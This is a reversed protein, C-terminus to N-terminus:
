STLDGHPRKLKNLVSIMPTGIKADYDTGLSTNDEDLNNCIAVIARACAHLAAIIGQYDMGTETQIVDPICVKEDANNALDMDAM